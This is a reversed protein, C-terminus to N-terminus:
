ATPCTTSSGTWAPRACRCSRAADPLGDLDRLDEWRPSSSSSARTAPAPADSSRRGAPPRRGHRAGRSRRGLRDLPPSCARSPAARLRELLDAVEADHGNLTLAREAAGIADSVRDTRALAHRLAGLRDAVGADLMRRRSPRPSRPASTAPSTTPSRSTSCGRSARASRARASSRPSRPRATWSACACAASGSGRTPTRPRARGRRPRGGRRRPRDRGHGRLHARRLPAARPARADVRAWDRVARGAATLNGAQWFALTMLRLVSTNDPEADRAYVLRQAALKYDGEAMAHKAATM